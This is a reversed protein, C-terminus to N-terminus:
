EPDDEDEAHDGGSHDGGTDVPDAYEFGDGGSSESRESESTEPEEEDDSDAEAGGDDELETELRSRVGDRDVTGSVTRPLTEAFGVVRPCKFEALRDDCFSLLEESTLPDTMPGDDADEGEQGADAGDAGEAAEASDVDNPEEPSGDDDEGSLPVVPVVLAGVLEGWTDDPVGVVAADAVEPHERLVEVVEGPDVNEGGTIIRDDLRNTVYLYGDEDLRGVDGTHFGFEGFAAENEEPMGYYGPVVTPGSVVIEGSEGAPVSEGDDVIEVDTWLLPRGVTGRRDFAEAPAATAVQSATETMGYTPYVPISFGQCRDLLETSAPAGGLLVVRLSDSLTGRADLMRQLMAPVLSVGTVDYRDIDDAAPGPDFTERLVVTTGYLTARYLPAIGGTHHLSLTVLWRDDPHTGLRFASAAASSLVNGMRVDVPKPTGTTGSTYLLLLPDEREWTAPAPEGAEVDPLPTVDALEEADLAEEAGDAGDGSGGGDEEVRDVCIVPVGTSALAARSQELTTEDCALATLDARDARESLEPETFDHGLPVLVLGLRMAAHVLRVYAVRPPMVVGLHDGPRLGLADLRGALADVERDLEAYEWTEGDRARVLAPRNPTAAARHSLWDRM